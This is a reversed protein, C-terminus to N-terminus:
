NQCITEKRSPIVLKEFKKGTCKNGKAVFRAHAKYMALGNPVDRVRGMQIDGMVGRLRIENSEKMAEVRAKKHKAAMVNNKAM